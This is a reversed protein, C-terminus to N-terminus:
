HYRDNWVYKKYNGHVETRSRPTCTIHGGGGGGRSGEKTKVREEGKYRKEERVSGKKEIKKKKIVRKRKRRVRRIKKKRVRRRRRREVRRKTKKRKGRERMEFKGECWNKGEEEGVRGKEKGEEM